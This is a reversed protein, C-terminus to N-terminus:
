ALWLCHACGATEACTMNDRRTDHQKEHRRMNCLRQAHWATEARAAEACTMCDSRTNHQLM